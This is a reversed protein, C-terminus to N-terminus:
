RSERAHMRARVIPDLPDLSPELQAGFTKFVMALVEYCGVTFVIDMLQTTSFQKSLRAWTPDQIRADAHLEDVARVLAPRNRM